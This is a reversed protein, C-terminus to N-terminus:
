QLRPEGNANVTVTPGPASTTQMHHQVGHWDYVTDWYEPAGAAVNPACRQPNTHLNNGIVGGLVAGGVAGGITAEDGSGVEHGLIGGLVGGIVAGGIRNRRQEELAQDRDVWCPQGNVAYYARSSLVNAQYLQEQPRPRWDYAPGAPAAYRTPEYRVDSPLARVSTIRDELGMSALNPYRGPQLIVCRGGYAARSCVEWNSGFVVASAARDNFGTGHFDAVDGQANFSPGRFHDGMYFTIQGPLPAPAYREDAYRANRDAERASSLRDNMAMERLSPYNGPRLVICRGRFYADDCVEWAHGTVIASSAQDNFGYSKFNDVPDRATFSRGSFNEHEFFTVDAFAAGASLAAAAVLCTKLIAQMHPEKNHRKHDVALL